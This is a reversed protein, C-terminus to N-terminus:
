HFVSCQDILRSALSSYSHDTCIIRYGSGAIQGRLEKNALLHTVKVGLDDLSDFVMLDRGPQFHFGIEPATDSLLLTSTALVEFFRLNLGSSRHARSANLVIKARSYLENVARESLYEGGYAAMLVSKPITSRSAWKPGFIRINKTLDFVKKLVEDRWPSWAGVFVIDYVKENQQQFFITPNFAHPMYRARVGRSVLIDVTKKSYSFYDDFGQSNRLIEDEQDSPEIWWGIFHTTARKFKLISFVPKGQIVIVIDPKFRLFVDEFRRQYWSEQNYRSETFMYFDKKRFFLNKLLSNFRKLFIRDVWHRKNDLFFTEVQYGRDTFASALGVAISPFAYGSILIRM